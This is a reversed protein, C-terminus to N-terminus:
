SPYACVFSAHGYMNTGSLTVNVTCLQGNTKLELLTTKDSFQGVNLLVRIPPRYGVPLTTLPWASSWDINPRMEIFLTAMSGHRVVFNGGGVNGVNSDLVLSASSGFSFDDVAEALAQIANDGDMVRDTGTPYPFGYPSTTGGM